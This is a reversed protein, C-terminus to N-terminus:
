KKTEMRGMIDQIRSRTVEYERSVNKSNAILEPVKADGKMAELQDSAQRATSGLNGIMQMTDLNMLLLINIIALWGDKDPGKKIDTLAQEFRGSIFEYTGDAQARIQQLSEDSQIGIQVLRRVAESRSPVRNAFRWDDIAEIEARTIKLQMRETDTEGLKPRAM